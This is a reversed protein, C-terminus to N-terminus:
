CRGWACPSNTIFFGFFAGIGMSKLVEGAEMSEMLRGETFYFFTFSAMAGITIAIISKKFHTSKITRKFWNEKNSLELQKFQM